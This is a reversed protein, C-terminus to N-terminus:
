DEEVKGRARKIDSRRSKSQLRRERSARTPRTAVRKKKRVLSKELLEVLRARAEERNRAQSRHTQVFLVIEGEDNIRSALSRRIRAKEDDTFALSAGINFRLQVASAVKNVNQGGPGGATVFKEELEHEFNHLFVPM